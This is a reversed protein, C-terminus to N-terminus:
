ALPIKAVLCVKGWRQMSWWQYFRDRTKADLVSNDMLEASQAAVVDKKEQTKQKSSSLRKPLLLKVLPHDNKQLINILNWYPDWHISSM